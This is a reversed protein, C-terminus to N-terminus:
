GGRLLDSTTPGCIRATLRPAGGSARARVNQNRALFPRLPPLRGCRCFVIDLQSHSPRIQNFQRNQQGELNVRNRDLVHVDMIVPEIPRPYWRLGFWSGEDDVNWLPGVWHTGFTGSLHALVLEVSEEVPTRMSSSPKMPLSFIRSLWPGCTPSCSITIEREPGQM